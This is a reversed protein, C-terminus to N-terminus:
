NLEGEKISEPKEKVVDRERQPGIVPVKLESYYKARLAHSDRASNRASVAHSAMPGEALSASPEFPARDRWNPAAVMSAATPPCPVLGYRGELSLDRATKFVRGVPREREREKIIERADRAEQCRARGLGVHGAEHRM